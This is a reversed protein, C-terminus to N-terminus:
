FTNKLTLFLVLMQFMSVWIMQILKQNRVFLSGRKDTSQETDPKKAITTNIPNKRIGGVPDIKRKKTTQESVKSQETEEKTLFATLKVQKKGDSKEVQSQIDTLNSISILPVFHNQIYPVNARNDFNGDPRFM